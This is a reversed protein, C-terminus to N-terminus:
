DTFHTMNFVINWQKIAFLANLQVKPLNLNKMIKLDEMVKFFVEKWVSDLTKKLSNM